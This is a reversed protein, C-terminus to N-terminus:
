LKDSRWMYVHVQCMYFVHAQIEASRGCWPYISKSKFQTASPHHHHLPLRNWQLRFLIIVNIIWLFSLIMINLLFNSAPFELASASTDQCYVHFGSTPSPILLKIEEMSIKKKKKKGLSSWIYFDPM